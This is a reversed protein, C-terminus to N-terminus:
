FLQSLHVLVLYVLDLAEVIYVGLGCILVNSYVHANWRSIVVSDYFLVFEDRKLMKGRLRMKLAFCTLVWHFWDCGNKSIM